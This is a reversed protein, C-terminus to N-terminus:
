GGSGSESRIPANSHLVWFDASPNYKWLDNNVEDWGSHYGFGAYIYGGYEVGFPHIHYPTNIGMQAIATWTNTTINYKYWGNYGFYTSGAGLGIYIEDDIIGGAQGGGIQPCTTLLSGWTGATIDYTYWTGVVSGNNGMGAYVKGNYAFSVLEDRSDPYNAIASWSNGAIDYVYWTNTRGTPTDPSQIFGGGVYIKGNYACATARVRRGGTFDALKTWTDTLTNYSYWDKVATGVAGVYTLGLGVYILDGYKVSVQYAAEIYYNTKAVWSGNYNYWSKLFLPPAPSINQSRGLGYFINVEEEISRSFHGNPSRMLSGLGSRMYASSQM